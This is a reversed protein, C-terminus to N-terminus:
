RERVIELRVAPRPEGKVDAMIARLDTWGERFRTYSEDWTARVAQQAEPGEAPILGNQTAVVTASEALEHWSSLSAQRGPRRDDALYIVQFSSCPGLSARHSAVFAMARSARLHIQEAEAEGVNLFELAGDAGRRAVLGSRFLAFEILERPEDAMPVSLHRMYAGLIAVNGEADRIEDVSGLLHDVKAPAKVDAERERCSCLVGALVGLLAVRLVGARFCWPM